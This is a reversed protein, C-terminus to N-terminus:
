SQPESPARNPRRLKIIQQYVEWKAKQDANLLASFSSEFSDHAAKLQQGINYNAIALEGAKTTDGATVAAEMAERNERRQERLPQVTEKLSERLAKLQDVQADSLSLFEAMAEPSLGTRGRQANPGQGRRPPAAVAAIAVMLILILVLIRKM